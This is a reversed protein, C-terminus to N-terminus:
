AKGNSEEGLWRYELHFPRYIYEYHRGCKCVGTHLRNAVHQWFNDDNYGHVRFRYIVNSMTARAVIANGHKCTCDIEASFDRGSHQYKAVSWVVKTSEMM